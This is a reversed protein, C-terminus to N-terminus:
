IDLNWNIIDYSQKWHNKHFSPHTQVEKIMYFFYYYYKKKGKYIIYGYSFNSGADSANKIKKSWLSLRCEMHPLLIECQTRAPFFVLWCIVNQIFSTLSSAIELGLFSQM